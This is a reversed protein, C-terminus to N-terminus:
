RFQAHNKGSFWISNAHVEREGRDIERAIELQQTVPLLKEPCCITCWRDDYWRLGIRSDNIIARHEDIPSIKIPYNLGLKLLAELNELNFNVIRFNKNELTQLSFCNGWDSPREKPGGGMCTYETVCIADFKETPMKM